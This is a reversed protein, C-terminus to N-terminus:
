NLLSTKVFEVTKLDIPLDSRILWRSLKGIVVMLLVGRLLNDKEEPFFTKLGFDDREIETIDKDFSNIFEEIDKQFTPFRRILHQCFNNANEPILFDDLEDSNIQIDRTCASTVSRSTIRRILSVEKIAEIRTHNSKRVLRYVDMIHRLGKPLKLDM